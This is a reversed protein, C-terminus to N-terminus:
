IPGRRPAASDEQPARRAARALRLAADATASASWFAYLARLQLAVESRRALAQGLQYDLALSLPVAGIAARAASAAQRAHREAASLLAPLANALSGATALSEDSDRRVAFAEREAFLQGAAHAAAATAAWAALPSSRALASSPSADSAAFALLAVEPYVLPDLAPAGSAAPQSASSPSSAAPAGPARDDALAPVAHSWAALVDAAPRARALEADPRAPGGGEDHLAGLELSIRTLEALALARRHSLLPPAVVAAIRRATEANGLDIAPERALAALQAVAADIAQSSVKAASVARFAEGGLALRSLQDGVAPAPATALVDLLSTAEALAARERLVATADDLKGQEMLEVIRFSTVAAAALASAETLRDLAAPFAGAVRLEEARKAERQAAATLQALRPPLRAANDLLLLAAWEGGLRQQWAAYLATLQAQAAAPLALAAAPAPATAPLAGGTLLHYAEAVDSVLVLEAGDARALAALAVPKGGASTMPSPVGIRKKGDKALASVRAALDEVAGLSGDPLLSAAVAVEDDLAADTLAALFGVALAAEAGPDGASATWVYAAPDKNLLRAAAAAAVRVSLAARPSMPRPTPEGTLPLAARAIVALELRQVRAAPEAPAKGAAAPVAAGTGGEGGAGSERGEGREEGLAAELSRQGSPRLALVTAVEGSAPATATALILASTVDDDLAWPKVAHVGTRPARAAPSGGCAPAAALGLSAMLLAAPLAHMSQRRM